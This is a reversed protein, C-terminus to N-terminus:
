PQMRQVPNPNPIAEKWIIAPYYCSRISAEFALAQLSM